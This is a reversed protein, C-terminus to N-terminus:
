DVPLWVIFTAGQGPQSRATIAGGHLEVIKKCIALGIGTGEYQSQRHLRQFVTFIRDLHKEEFGIGTDTIRIEACQSVTPLLEPHSVIQGTIGIRLDRGPQHFKLANGIINEFLNRLLETDGIVVPLTGVTIGAQGERITDDFRTLVDALLATLPVPKHTPLHSTVQAYALLDQVLLRMRGAAHQMRRIMAAASESLEHSFEQELADGFSVIKRLPEQLDHSAVYAFQELNENSRRLELVLSELQQQAQKSDTINTYSIVLGDNLKAVSLAFHKDFGDEKYHTEFQNSIGTELVRMYIPWLTTNKFGPLVTLLRQGVIQERTLGLGNLLAQSAEIYLYDVLRGDTDRVAEFVSLGSQITNLIGDLLRAQHELEDISAKEETIDNLSVLLGDEIRTLTIDLWMDHSTVYEEHRIPEGYNMVDRLRDMRPLTVPYLRSLPMGTFFDAQLGTMVEFLRNVLSVQFDIIEGRGDRVADFLVVAHPSNNIINSLRTTQRHLAQTSNPDNTNHVYSLLLGDGLPLIAMRGSANFGDAAYMDKFQQPGQTEVVEIFARWMALPRISPFYTTVLQGVLDSPLGPRDRVIDRRAVENVFRYRFDVITGTASDRVPDLGILGGPTHQFLHQWLAAQEDPPLLHPATISANM